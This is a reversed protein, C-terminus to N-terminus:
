LDSALVKKKVQEKQQCIPFCFLKYEEKGGHMTRYNGKASSPIEVLGPSPFRISDAAQRKSGKFTEGLGM